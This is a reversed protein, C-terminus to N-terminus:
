TAAHQPETFIRFQTLDYVSAVIRTPDSPRGIGSRPRADYSAAIIM